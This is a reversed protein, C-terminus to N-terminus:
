NSITTLIAEKPRHTNVFVDRKFDIDWIMRKSEKEYIMVDIKYFYYEKYKKPFEFESYVSIRNKVLENWQDVSYFYENKWVNVDFLNIKETNTITAKQIPYGEIACLELSRIYQHGFAEVDNNQSVFVFSHFNNFSHEISKSADIFRRVIKVENNENLVITTVKM